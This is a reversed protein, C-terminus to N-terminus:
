HARDSKNTYADHVDFRTLRPITLSNDDPVFIDLVQSRHVFQLRRGVCELDVPAALNQDGSKGVHVDV